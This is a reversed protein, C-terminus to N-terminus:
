IFDIFIFLSYDQDGFVDNPNYKIIMNERDIYDEVM